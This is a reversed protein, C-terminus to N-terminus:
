QLSKSIVEALDVRYQSVQQIVRQSLENRREVVYTITNLLKGSDIDNIDHVYDQLGMNAMVGETKFGQYRIAIVPTGACAALICSHLRTGLLLTCQGYLFSLESPSLDDKVSKVPIDNEQLEKYLYDILDLDSEGHHKVTVQPFLVPRLDLNLYAKTLTDVLVQVYKDRQKKPNKSSPFSWNVVTVGIWLDDKIFHPVEEPAKPEILFAMDPAMLVNKKVDIEDLLKFTLQERVVVLKCKQLMKATAKRANLSVLPGISQGLIIVPKHLDIACSIISLMRWLYLAGRMGRQDNYIYQGGKAIVLNAEKISSLARAKQPHFWSFLKPSKLILALAFVHKTLRILANLNRLIGKEKDNVYPSPMVGEEVRLGIKQIFRSHFNFDPDHESFVSHLLISAHPAVKRIGIITGLVIALDGKNSDSYTHTIVIKM